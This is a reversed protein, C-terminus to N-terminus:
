LYKNIDVPLVALVYVPIEQVGPPNALLFAGGILTSLCHLWLCQLVCGISQGESFSYRPGLSFYNKSSVLGQFPCISIPLLLSLQLSTSLQGYPFSKVFFFKKTEFLHQVKARSPLREAM